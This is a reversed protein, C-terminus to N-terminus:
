LGFPNFSLERGFGSLGVDSGLAVTM